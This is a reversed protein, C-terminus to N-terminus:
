PLMSMAKLLAPMALFTGASSEDSSSQSRTM